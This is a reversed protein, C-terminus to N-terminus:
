LSETLNLYNLTLIMKLNPTSLTFKMHTMTYIVGLTQPHTYFNDNLQWM